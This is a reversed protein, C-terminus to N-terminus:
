EVVKYRKRVVQLFYQVTTVIVVLAALALLTPILYRYTWDPTADDAPPPPATVAPPAVSQATGDDEVATTETTTTEQEETALGPGAVSVLLLSLLGTAILRSAARM